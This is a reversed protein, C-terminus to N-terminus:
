GMEYGWRQGSSLTRTKWLVSGGQEPPRVIVEVTALRNKRSASASAQRMGKRMTPM